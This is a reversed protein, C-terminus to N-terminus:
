SFRFWLTETCFWFMLVDQFRSRNAWKKVNDCKESTKKTLINTLFVLLNHVTGLRCRMARWSKLKRSSAWVAWRRHVFRCLCIGFPEFNKIQRNDSSNVSSNVKSAHGCQDCTLVSEILGLYTSYTLRKKNLLDTLKLRGQAPKNYLVNEGITAVDNHLAEIIIRLFEQADEQKNAKFIDTFKWHKRWIRIWSSFSNNEASFVKLSLNPTKSTANAWRSFSQLGWLRSRKVHFKLQTEKPIPGIPLIRQLTNCQEFM